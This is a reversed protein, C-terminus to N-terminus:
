VMLDLDCPAPRERKVDTGEGEEGEREDRKRGDIRALLM